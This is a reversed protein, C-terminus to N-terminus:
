PGTIPVAFFTLMGVGHANVLDGGTGLYGEWTLQTAPTPGDLGLVLEAGDVTATVVSAGQIRFFSALRPQASLTHGTETFSLRLTTSDDWTIADVNPPDVDPDTGAGYFDQELQRTLQDGLQTYGETLYHCGDHTRLATASMLRVDSYSDALQRQAERVDTKGGLLGLPAIGCGKRVQVVYLQELAPFDAYWDARLQAFKTPYLNGNWTQGDSGGDSEGQYWILARASAQFTSQAARYLFRGYITGLDEPSSDNRQHQGIYTGGVAGNLLGIPVAYTDVLNHAMRLAWAGVAADSHYGEGDALEWDLDAFASAAITSASGFSRIWPSQEDNAVGEGWYDGAVANSQGQVLILDGCALADRFAIGRWSAGDHGQLQVQHDILGADLTISVAYSGDAAVAASATEIWTSGDWVTARVASVATTTGALDVTCRDDGDRQHVASDRPMEDLTVAPASDCTGDGGFDVTDSPCPDQCDALGDGDSDTTADLDCPDGTAGAPLAKASVGVLGAADPSPAACAVLTAAILSLPLKPVLLELPPNPPLPPTM